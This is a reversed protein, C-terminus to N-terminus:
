QYLQQGVRFHEWQYVKASGNHDAVLPSASVWRSISGNTAFGLMTLWQSLGVELVDAKTITERQGTALSAVEITAAANTPPRVVLWYRGCTAAAADYKLWVIDDQYIPSNM